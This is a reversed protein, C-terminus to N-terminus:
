KICIYKKYNVYYEDKFMYKEPVKLSHLKCYEVLADWTRRSVRYTHQQYYEWMLSTTSKVWGRDVLVDEALTVDHEDYILELIDRAKLGHANGDFYNGAPDIWVNFSDIDVKLPNYGTLMYLEHWDHCEICNLTELVEKDISTHGNHYNYLIGKDSLEWWANNWNVFKMFKDKRNFM